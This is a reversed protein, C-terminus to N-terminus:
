KILKNKLNKLLENENYKIDYEKLNKIIDDKKM